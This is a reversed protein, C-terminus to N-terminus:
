LTKNLKKLTYVSLTIVVAGVIKLIFIGLAVKFTTFNSGKFVRYFLYPHFRTFQMPQDFFISPLMNFSLSTM